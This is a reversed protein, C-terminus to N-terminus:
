GAGGQLAAEPDREFRELFAIPLVDGADRAIGRCGWRGRAVSGFGLELALDLLMWAVGPRQGAEGPGTQLAAGPARTGGRFLRERDIGPLLERGEDHGADVQDLALGVL